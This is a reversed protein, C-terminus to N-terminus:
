TQSYMDLATDISYTYLLNLHLLSTQNLDALCGCLIFSLRVNREFHMLNVTAINTFLYNVEFYTFFYPCCIFLYFAWMSLIQWATM